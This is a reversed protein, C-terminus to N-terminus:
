SIISQITAAAYTSLSTFRITAKHHGGESAQIAIVKGYLRGPFNRGPRTTSVCM